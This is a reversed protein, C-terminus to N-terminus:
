SDTPPYGAGGGGTEITADERRVPESIRVRETVVHRSLRVREMPVVRPTIVPEEGYLVFDPPLPDDRGDADRDSADVPVREVRLEERRLRVKVTVEEEVIVKRLRVCEVPRVRWGVQLREEHLVVSASGEAHRVVEPGRPSAGDGLGGRPRTGDTAESAGAFFARAAQEDAPELRRVREGADPAERVRRAPFPLELTGDAERAREAPVLVRREGAGGMGATRVLAFRPAGTDGDVYVDEVRGLSEGSPDTAILDTWDDAIAM